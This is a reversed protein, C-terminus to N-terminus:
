LAKDIASLVRATAAPKHIAIRVHQPEGLADGEAVLVGSLALRAALEGGSLEPHAAWVFNAQSDAVEFGRERLGAILRPREECITEVHRELLNSCTRLAELAGAQSVESVGLDPDLEAMLEQSRPGGIAYGVRLGALGWAKSFSRFVLLRPHRELLKLSVDTSQQDVFEVLAEDLLVAVTEPLGALLRELEGAAVLEGTPDNPNALAIVRTAPDQAAELLADVGGTVPAAQGHARRAMIPYLPYSPWSTLLRQGPEILARTASSLLEAAGNGLVLRGPDVGLRAALENRLESGRLHPYRHLGRRAVFTIANVIRPNPLEPWTTQSLDLTDVRTLAKRRREAAEERLGANIEEETMGEFQKYYDLLSMM